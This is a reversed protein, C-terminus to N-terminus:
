SILPRGNEWASRKASEQNISRLSAQILLTFMAVPRAEVRLLTLGPLQGQPLAKSAILEVELYQWLTPPFSLASFTLPRSSSSDKDGGHSGKREGRFQLGHGAEKSGDGVGTWREETQARYRGWDLPQKKVEQGGGRVQAAM